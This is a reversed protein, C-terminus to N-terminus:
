GCYLFILCIKGNINAFTVEMGLRRKYRQIHRSNQCPEVLAVIFFDYEKHMNIVRHFAQQTNVSKSNWILTKILMKSISVVRKPLFKTPQPVEKNQGQKKRKKGSKGTARSSLDTERAIAKFNWTTLENDCEEELKKHELMSNQIDVLAINHTVIDHVVQLPIKLPINLQIQM